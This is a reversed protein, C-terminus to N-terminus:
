YVLDKYITSKSLFLKDAIEGVVKDTPKKSKWVRQKVFLRRKELRDKDRNM